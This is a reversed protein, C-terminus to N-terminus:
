HVRIQRRITQINNGNNNSLKNKVKCGQRIKNLYIREVSPVGGSMAETERRTFFFRFLFEAFVMCDVQEAIFVM